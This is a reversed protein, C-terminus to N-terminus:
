SWLAAVIEESIQHFTSTWLNFFLSKGSVESCSIFIGPLTWCELEQAMARGIIGEQPQPENRILVWHMSDYVKSNPNPNANSNYVTGKGFKWLLCFKREGHEMEHSHILLSMNFDLPRLFCSIPTTSFQQIQILWNSNMWQRVIHSPSQTPVGKAWVKRSWLGTRFHDCM